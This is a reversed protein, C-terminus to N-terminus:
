LISGGRGNGLFDNSSNEFKKTARKLRDLPSTRAKDRAKKKIAQVKARAKERTYKRKERKLEENYIKKLEQQEKSYGKVKAKVQDFLGM